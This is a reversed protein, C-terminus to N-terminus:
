RGAFGQSRRGQRGAGQVERDLVDGNRGLPHDPREKIFNEFLRTVEFWNGLKRWQSGAELLAYNLVEDSTAARYRALTLPPPRPAAQGVGGVCRRLLSLVEGRIPDNPYKKEWLAVEAVIEQFRDAAYKCLLSRYGADAVFAGDPYQKLYM